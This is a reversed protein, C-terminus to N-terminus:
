SKKSTKAFFARFVQTVRQSHCKPCAPKRKEHASIAETRSFRKGCKDCSYSYTPMIVESRVTM